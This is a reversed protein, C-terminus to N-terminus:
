RPSYPALLLADRRQDGPNPLRVEVDVHASADAPAEHPTELQELWASLYRGDVKRAASWLAPRAAPRRADEGEEELLATGSGTLLRGRLVPSFPLVEVTAGARHAIVAAVVDAQQCALGGQKVPYTTGDGAAFVGPCGAVAGFGDVPIFGRDDSPVGELAPGELVPLAVIRQEPLPEGTPGELVRGTADVSVHTDGTFAIGAEALLGAVADSAEPGFISLPQHEPSVIRLAADTIYMGRVDAATQLALEYLPLSWTTSGPVVFAVSRSWRGELDALLGHLHEDHDHAPFTIARPLAPRPRAGLALVLADYELTQGGSLRVTKRAADVSMLSGSVLEADTDAALEALSHRRVHDVLFPQATRLARLEFDEHPAVLTISVRDGALDRLGLVTEVAAVGGGAVIVHSPRHTSM